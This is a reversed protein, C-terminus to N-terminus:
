SRTARAWGGGHGIRFLAQFVDREVRLTANARIWHCDVRMGGSGIDYVKRELTRLSLSVGYSSLNFRIESFVPGDLGPLYVNIVNNKLDGNLDLIAKYFGGPERSSYAVDYLDSTRISVNYYKTSTVNYLKVHKKVGKLEYYVSSLSSNCVVPIEVYVGGDELGRTVRLSAYDILISVGDAEIRRPLGLGGIARVIEKEGYGLSILPAIAM